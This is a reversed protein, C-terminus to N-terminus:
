CTNNNNDGISTTTLLLVFSSTDAFIVYASTSLSARPRIAGYVRTECQQRLRAKEIDLLHGNKIQDSTFSMSDTLLEYLEDFDM